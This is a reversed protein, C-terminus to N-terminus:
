APHLEGSGSASGVGAEGAVEEDGDWSVAGYTSTPSPGTPSAAPAPDTHDTAASLAWSTRISASDASAFSGVSAPLVGSLVVYAAPETHTVDNPSPLTRRRSGSCPVTSSENLTPSPGSPIVPANPETQTTAWSEPWSTLISGEEGARMTSRISM